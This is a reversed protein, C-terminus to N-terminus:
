PLFTQLFLGLRAMQARQLGVVSLRQREVDGLDEERVFKNTFPDLRRLVETALSRLPQRTVLPSQELFPKHFVSWFMHRSVRVIRKPRLVLGNKM